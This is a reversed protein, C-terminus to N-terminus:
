SAQFPIIMNLIFFLSSTQTLAVEIKIADDKNASLGAAFRTGSGAEKPAIVPKGGVASLPPDSM